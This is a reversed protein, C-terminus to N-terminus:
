WNRRKAFNFPKEFTVGHLTVNSFGKLKLSFPRSQLWWFRWFVRFCIYCFSWSFARMRPFRERRFYVPPILLATTLTYHVYAKTTSARPSVNCKLIVDGLSLKGTTSIWSMLSMLFKPTVKWATGRNAFGLSERTQELNRSLPPFRQVLVLPINRLDCKHCSPRVDRCHSSASAGHDSNWICVGTESRASTRHKLLVVSFSSLLVISYM